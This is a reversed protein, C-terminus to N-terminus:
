ARPPGPVAHVAGADHERAHLRRRSLILSLITPNCGNAFRNFNARALSQNKVCSVIKASGFGNRSGFNQPSHSARMSRNNHSLTKARLKALFFWKPWSWIVTHTCLECQALVCGIQVAKCAVSNRLAPNPSSACAYPMPRQKVYLGPRSADHNRNAQQRVFILYVNFCTLRRLMSRYAM